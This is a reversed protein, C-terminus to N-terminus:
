RDLTDDHSPGMDPPGLWTCLIVAIALAGLVIIMTM